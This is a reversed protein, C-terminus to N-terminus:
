HRGGGGTEGAEEGGATYPIVRPAEGNLYARLATDGFIFLIGMAIISIIVIISVIVSRKVM